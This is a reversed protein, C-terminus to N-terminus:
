GALHRIDGIQVFRRHRVQFLAVRAAARAIDGNAAFKVRTSIGRFDVNGLAANIASRGPHGAAVAVKIARIIANAADYAAASYSGPRVGFRARYAGAFAREAPTAFQLKCGCTMYWGNGAAGAGSTFASSFIGDAAVRRGHYGAHTLAKALKAAAVDYGAYFVTHAGSGAIRRALPRYNTTTVGDQALYTVRIGRARAAHTVADGVTKGYVSRDQVVIMRDVAHRALWVAAATGELADSPVDRHFVRWGNHSLSTNSAAPSVIGLHAQQYQGGAAVTTGSFLPGVVGKVTPDTILRQAAAPAQPPDGQDDSSKLALTFPLTGAANAQAVALAAGNRAGVGLTRAFGSLPGEFGIRYTTVVVGAPRPAASAAPGIAAVTGVSSGCVVLAVICWRFSVSGSM